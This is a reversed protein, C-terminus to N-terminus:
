VPSSLVKHHAITLQYSHGVVIHTAQSPQGASSETIDSVGHLATRQNGTIKAHQLLFPAWAAQPRAAFASSPSVYLLLWISSAIVVTIKRKM